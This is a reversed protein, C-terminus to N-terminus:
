LFSKTAKIYKIKESLVRPYRSTIFFGAKDKSLSLRNFAMEKYSKSDILTKEYRDRIWEFLKWYFILVYRRSRRTLRPQIHLGIASIPKLIFVTVFYNIV